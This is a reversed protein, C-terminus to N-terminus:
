DSRIFYIYILLALAASGSFLLPLAKDLELEDGIILTAMYETGSLYWGGGVMAIIILDKFSQKYLLYIVLGIFPILFWPNSFLGAVDVHKIQEPLGTLNALEGLYSFFSKNKEYLSGTLNGFDM